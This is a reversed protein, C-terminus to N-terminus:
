PTWDQETVITNSGGHSWLRIDSSARTASSMHYCRRLPGVPGARLGRGRLYIDALALRAGIAPLGIVADLTEFSEWRNLM